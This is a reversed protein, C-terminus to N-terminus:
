VLCPDRQVADERGSTGPTPGATLRANAGPLPDQRKARLVAKGTCAAPGTQRGPQMGSTERDAKAKRGRLAGCFRVKERWWRKGQRGQSPVVVTLGAKADWHERYSGHVRSSDGHKTVAVASLFRRDVASDSSECVRLFEPHV